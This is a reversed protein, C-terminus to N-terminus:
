FATMTLSSRRSAADAPYFADGAPLLAVGVMARVLECALRSKHRGSKSTLHFDRHM